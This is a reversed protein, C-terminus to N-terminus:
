DRYFCSGGIFERLISNVPIEDEVDATQIYNLFKVLRQALTYHPSSPKIASLSPYAYKKMIPLEYALSSNIMADAEEQYPFIYSEEGHRVSKWMAMTEEPSTGRFLNDRVIRRLLRADTTRIRNHDDLNLMTLASIYIKFKKSRAIGETLAENLGHIGEIIIPQGAEVCFPTTKAKRTGTHFDYEPLDVTEGAMLRRLHDSILDTDLTDIRELDVSGDPEVPLDARNRYYDDLSVKVPRLGQVRLAISLRNSFTTKGSSSPGAILILRAGSAIFQDAISQIKREQLAENVRIFERLRGNVIMDNLDAANSCSLIKHWHATEQYVRVLKPLDKFPAPNAPNKVDPQMLVLGPAYKVLSFVSVDGTRPVMEGYFYDEPGNEINYLTFHPYQRYNLIRLRDTQGTRAFYDQADDTTVSKREIPLNRAALARMEKEISGLLEDTVEAGEISIYLGSGFSHEIRVHLEPDVRHVATIFLLQLSREYIRRGEEDAYTLIHAHSYEVAPDNLSYTRGLVSIGLPASVKKDEPLLALTEQWSAGERVNIEYGDLKLYM